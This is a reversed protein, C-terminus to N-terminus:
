KIRELEAKWVDEVDFKDYGQSKEWVMIKYKDDEVYIKEIADPLPKDFYISLHKKGDISDFRDSVIDKEETKRSKNPYALQIKIYMANEEVRDIYDDVVILSGHLRGEMLIRSDRVDISTVTYNRIDSYAGTGGVCFIILLPCTILLIIVLLRKVSM